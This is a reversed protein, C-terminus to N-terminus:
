NSYERSPFIFGFLLAAILAVLLLYLKTKM